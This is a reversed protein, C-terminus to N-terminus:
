RLAKRVVGVFALSGTVLIIDDPYNKELLRIVELYDEDFKYDGLYLFYEEETRARKHKFTTLTVDNSISGLSNLMSDINKDKFCAFVIHVPKTISTSITEVLDNMAEANHAGDLILNKKVFEFRGPLNKSLLGKRLSDESVHFKENLIKVAEIALAANKIQYKANSLIELKQYPFYDFTYHDNKIYENHFNDVTFLDCKLEKVKENIAYLASDDLKGILVPTKYKIIGAKNYAIESISRGLYATHELSVSTIISLLPNIINTADIYGGMGVEVVVLDLDHKKFIEYAIITQMEFSTLGYKEFREKFSLFVDIYDEESVKNGNISIMETSDYFYPSNYLGVKYGSLLYIQYIYNATSGKGNTGTIHISNFSYSLHEHEIFEDFRNREYSSLNHSQFYRELEEINM